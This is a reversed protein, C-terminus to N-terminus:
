FFYQLRKDERITDLATELTAISTTLFNFTLVNDKEFSPEDAPLENGKAKDVFRASRNFKPGICELMLEAIRKVNELRDLDNAAEESFEMNTRLTLLNEAKVEPVLDSLLLVTALINMLGTIHCLHVIFEKKKNTLKDFEGGENFFTDTVSKSCLPTFTFSYRAALKDKYEVFSDLDLFCYLTNNGVVKVGINETKLDTYFLGRAEVTRVMSIVQNFCNYVDEVADEAAKFHTGFYNLLDNNILGMVCQLTGDHDAYLPAKPEDIESRYICPFFRSLFEDTAYTLLLTNVRALM